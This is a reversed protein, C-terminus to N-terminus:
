LETHLQQQTEGDDETEWQEETYTEEMVLEDNQEMVLETLENVLVRIQEWVQIIFLLIM